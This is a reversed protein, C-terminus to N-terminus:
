RSGASAVAAAGSAHLMALEEPTLRRVCRFGFTNRAFCADTIGPIEAYRATTRCQSPTSNWAGGRMVRKPGDEPGHPDTVPSHQYYGADYVDQCWELVNGRMDHLGFANPKRSGVPDTKQRSNGAYCAHSSLQKEVAAGTGDTNLGTTRSGARAAYEWEAETPLRYGNANFDCAFTAEDYCPQLGEARSRANCLQAADSWRVQEVPRRPGKFQSPNPMQLKALQEQTVEYKDIAFPSLIVKHRPSEDVGGATGGMTFAGGPLLVMAVGLPTHIEMVSVSATATPNDTRTCACLMWALLMITTRALHRYGGSMPEGSKAFRLDM